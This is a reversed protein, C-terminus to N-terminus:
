QNIKSLGRFTLGKPIFIFTQRNNKAIYQEQIHQDVYAKTLQGVLPILHPVSCARVREFVILKLLKPDVRSSDVCQSEKKVTDGDFGGLLIHFQYRLVVSLSVFRNGIQVTIKALQATALGWCNAHNVVFYKVVTNPVIQGNIM